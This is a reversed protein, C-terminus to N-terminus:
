RKFVSRLNRRSGAWAKLSLGLASTGFLGGAVVGAGTNPLESPTNCEKSGAPVGPKCENCKADGMPVGPKCEEVPPQEVTVKKACNDSTIGTVTKGDVEFTVSVKTTYDGPKNYKHTQTEQGAGVILTQSDGFDFSYEKVKVNGQTKPTVKYEFTDRSKKIVDLADCTYKNEVPREKVEFPKKCNDSTATKEQGDVTVVVTAAVTYKGVKDQNYTYTGDTSDQTAIQNGQEDRVVFVFKKFEANEVVKTATFKFQTRSIQEVSLASCEYKPTKPTECTKDTTVDASDEKNGNDTESSAVNHLTNPGCTPLQDNGAVQATFVVFANIGAAYNGINAGTATFLSDPLTYGSPYASNYLKATGAVYNLGAPLQDKLVVNDLKADGTNKFSLRFDVKDGPKSAVSKAYADTTGSKRVDKTFTYNAQQPGQVKVKFTVYGAYQMCGPIVGDLKDYGLQAGTDTVINDSLQIGDKTYVNNYLRASGAVYAVNFDSSSNFTASDWIEGPQANDATIFGGLQVSKGTTTPVNVKTRVNTAKLNLNAAADNHVYVRVLYEHGAQATVNDQWGGASTNSADKMVLFNREDGVEPNDTISDFTVHDAPMDMTYTPRDPGWAMVAAPIVVAAVAVGVPLWRKPVRRLLKSVFKM